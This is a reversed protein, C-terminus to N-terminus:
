FGVKTPGMGMFVCHFTDVVLLLNTAIAAAISPLADEVDKEMVQRAYSFLFTGKLLAIDLEHHALEFNM